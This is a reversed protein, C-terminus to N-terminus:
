PRTENRGNLASIMRMAPTTACSSGRTPGFGSMSTPRASVVVPM